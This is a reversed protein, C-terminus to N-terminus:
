GPANASRNRTASLAEWATAIFLAFLAAGLTLLPAGLQDVGSMLMAGVALGALGIGLTAVISQKLTLQHVSVPPAHVTGRDVLPRLRHADWFLLYLNAILLGSTVFGTGKFRMSWTILVINCIIPLFLLAGLLATRPWLLFLAALVQALGVFWYYEHAQFFAEFFGGIPTDPSIQTFRLGALKRAGSPLFAAAMLWRTLITFKAAVSWSRLWCQLRLVADVPTQTHM